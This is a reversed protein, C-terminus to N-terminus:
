CQGIPTYCRICDAPQLSADWVASAKPLLLIVTSGMHFRGLEQGQQLRPASAAPYTQKIMPRGYPPTIRGAWSTSMSGVFLAGVLIVALPGLETEFLCVVRENRAFVRDITRTTAPNVSFLRGPISIMTTLQGSIPMHIRHYDRPSLYLTAFLGQDFLAAIDHDGGLLELLTFYHGKAQLLQQQVIAGMQSIHGDVPSLIQRPNATLPRAQSKLQRTFFADFNQYATPESPDAEDLKVGFWWSFLRILSTTVPGLRLRMFWFVLRSLTHHPLSYQLAAFLYDSLRQIIKSMPKKVQNVNTKESL